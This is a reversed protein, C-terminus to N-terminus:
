NHFILGVQGPAVEDFVCCAALLPCLLMEEVLTSCTADKDGTEQPSDADYHLVMVNRLLRVRKLACLNIYYRLETRRVGQSPFVKPWPEFSPGSCPGLDASVSLLKNNGEM